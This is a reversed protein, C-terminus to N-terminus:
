NGQTSTKPHQCKELLAGIVQEMQEKDHEVSQAADGDAQQQHAVEFVRDTVMPSPNM